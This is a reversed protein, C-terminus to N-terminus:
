SFLRPGIYAATSIIAAGYFLRILFPTQNRYRFERWVLLMFLMAFGILTFSM